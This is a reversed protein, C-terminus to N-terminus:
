GNVTKSDMNITGQKQEIEKLTTGNGNEMPLAKPTTGSLRLKGTKMTIHGNGM